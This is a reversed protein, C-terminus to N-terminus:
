RLAEQVTASDVFQEFRAVKGDRVTWHHAFRADFSKGTEKSTGSYNGTVVVDDGGDVVADPAVKFGDWDTM